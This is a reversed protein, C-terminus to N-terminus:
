NKSNIWFQDNTNDIFEEKKTHKSITDLQEQTAREQIVQFLVREEFRIHKELDEEIQGLTKEIDQWNGFLKRLKKHESLAQKVLPNEPLLIPFLFAEEEEFHQQLHNKWFWECYNKIRVPDIKLKFGQRIKWCVLLGQHHGHSLHHLAPHRKLPTNKKM